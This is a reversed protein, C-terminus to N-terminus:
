PQAPGNHHFCSKVMPYRDKYACFDIAQWGQADRYDLRGMFYMVANGSHLLRNEDTSVPQLAKDNLVRKSKAPVTFTKSPVSKSDNLMRQFLEEQRGETPNNETTYIAYHNQVEASIDGANEFHVNVFPFGDDGIARVDLSKIQISARIPNDVKRQQEIMNKVGDIVTKALDPHEPAIRRHLFSAAGALALCLSLVILWAGVSEKRSYPTGAILKADIHKLFLGPLHGRLAMAAGFFVLAYPFFLGGILYALGLCMVGSGWGVWIQRNSSEDLPAITREDAM